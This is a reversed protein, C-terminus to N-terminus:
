KLEERLRSRSGNLSTRLLQRGFLMAFRPNQGLYRKWLRTPEMALRFMWELGARQLFRPAQRKTGALFDFAAGVGIMVATVDGRHGSMWVEQKPCGLGVFLIRAGSANIDNSAAADEDHTLERFPPSSAYSVELRPWRRSVERCLDELVNRAGGYFGVPIRGAEALRLVVPTLDPGYVRTAGPVGLWRLGWVLPMGDPTVLDGENMVRLFREDDYAEMVNNVTAVFVTRSQGRKAWAIIRRAADPYSTADVRMGLISRSPPGVTVDEISVQASGSVPGPSALGRGREMGHDAM